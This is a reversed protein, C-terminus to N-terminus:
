RHSTLYAPLYVLGGIFLGMGIALYLGALMARPLASSKMGIGLTMMFVVLPYSTWSQFAFLCAKEPLALIREINRSAMRRFFHQTGLGILIGAAIFPLSTRWGEASWRWSLRMLMVGVACWMLAACLFLWEKTVAPKWDVNRGVL